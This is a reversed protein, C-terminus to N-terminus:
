GATGHLGVSDPGAAVCGAGDSPRACFCSIGPRMVPVAAQEVRVPRNRRPKASATNLPISSRGALPVAAAVGHVADIEFGGDMRMRVRKGGGPADVSQMPGSGELASLEALDAEGSMRFGAGLFRAENGRVAEYIWEATATAACFAARSRARGAAHRFRAPVSGAGWTPVQYRM